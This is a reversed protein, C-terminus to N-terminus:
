RSLNDLYALYEPRPSPHIGLAYVLASDDHNGRIVLFGREKAYKVVEASYPGKNVLDGLLLVQDRPSEFGVTDLLVKLEEFCGHVDGVVILRQFTLDKEELTVHPTTPAPLQSFYSATSTVQSSLLAAPSLSMAKFRVFAKKIPFHRPQFLRSPCFGLIGRIASVIIFLVVFLFLLIKLIM